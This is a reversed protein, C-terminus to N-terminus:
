IRRNKSYEDRQKIIEGNKASYWEGQYIFEFGSDRMVISLTENDNTKFFIPLYVNEFQINNDENEIIKM